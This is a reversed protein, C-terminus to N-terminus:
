DSRRGAHHGRGEPKRGSAVLVTFPDGKLRAGVGVRVEGLGAHCLLSELREDSFGLWRDGLRSRVWEQDHARLDLVLVRGGPKVVRV